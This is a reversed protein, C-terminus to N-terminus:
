AGAGELDDAVRAAFLDAEAKDLGEPDYSFPEGPALEDAEAMASAQANYWAQVDAEDCDCDCACGGACVDETEEDWCEECAHARDRGCLPCPEPQVFCSSCYPDGCM